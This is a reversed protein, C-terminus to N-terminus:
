YLKDALAKIEGVDKLDFEVNKEIIMKAVNFVTFAIKDNVDLDLLRLAMKFAKTETKLIEDKESIPYLEREIDRVNSALEFQQHKVFLIKLDKLKKIDKKAAKLYDKFLKEM